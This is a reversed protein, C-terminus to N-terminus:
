LVYYYQNGYGEQDNKTQNKGITLNLGKIFSIDFNPIEESTIQILKNDLLVDFTMDDTQVDHKSTPQKFIECPRSVTIFGYELGKAKLKNLKTPVQNAFATFATIAAWFLPKCGKECELNGKEKRYLNGLGSKMRKIAMSGAIFSSDEGINDLMFRIGALYVCCSKPTLQNGETRLYNLYSLIVSEKFSYYNNYQNTEALWTQPIIKMRIDTGYILIFDNYHRWATQYTLKTSEAVSEWIFLQANALSSMM